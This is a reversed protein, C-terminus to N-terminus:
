MSQTGLCLLRAMTLLLRIRGSLCCGSALRMDSRGLRGIWTGQIKGQAERAVARIEQSCTSARSHAHGAPHNKIENMLM